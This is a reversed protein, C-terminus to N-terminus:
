DGGVALVANTSRLLTAASSASAGGELVRGTSRKWSPLSLAAKTCCGGPVLGTPLSLAPCTSLSLGAMGQALVGTPLSLLALVGTPLSLLALGIPLSLAPCASLSLGEMGPVLVGTPLSLPALGTALSLVLVGTPLSLPALGTALSLAARTGFGAGDGWREAGCGSGVVAARRAELLVTNSARVAKSSPLLVGRALVAGCSSSGVIGLTGGQLNVARRAAGKWLQAPTGGPWRQLFSGGRNPSIMSAEEFSRCWRTVPKKQWNSRSLERVNAPKSGVSSRTSSMELSLHCRPIPGMANALLLRLSMSLCVSFRSRRFV